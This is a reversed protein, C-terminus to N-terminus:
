RTRRERDLRRNMEQIQVTLKALEVQISHMQNTLVERQMQNVDLAHNIVKDQDTDKKAQEQVHLAQASATWFYGGFVNYTNAVGLFAILLAVVTGIKWKNNNVSKVFEDQPAM